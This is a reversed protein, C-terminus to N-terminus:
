HHESGQGLEFRASNLLRTVQSQIQTQVLRRRGAASSAGPCGDITPLLYLLAQPQGMPPQRSKRLRHDTPQIAAQTDGGQLWTQGYRM